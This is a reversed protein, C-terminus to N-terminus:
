ESERRVNLQSAFDKEDQQMSDIIYQAFKSNNYVKNAFLILLSLTFLIISLTFILAHDYVSGSKQMYYVASTIMLIIIATV